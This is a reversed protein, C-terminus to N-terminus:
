DENEDESNSKDDEELQGNEEIKNNEAEEEEKLKKEKSKRLVEALYKFRQMCEEKTRGHVARAIKDWRELSGKPYMLLAAELAKQEEASWHEVRDNDINSDNAGKTKVKVKPQPAEEEEDPKKNSLRELVKKAMFTVEPVPRYLATAIREWRDPTGGPYRTCLKILEAIDDDTWLGGSVMPTPAPKSKETKNKDAWELPTAEDDDEEGKEPINVTKRKRPKKPVEALEKERQAEELEKAIRIREQEKAERLEKIYAKTDGPLSFIIYKISRYIQFPALDFISPKVLLKEAEAQLEDATLGEKMLKRSRQTKRLKSDIQEQLALKKEWYAGYKGFYQCLSVVGLVILAVQWLELKRARRYYFSAHRWNPLGDKLVQNYSIRLDTDKLVEYIGVLQRFKVAADEAPNKDPHLRLSLRRYSQRLEKTSADQPVEMFEYFSQGALEEVLDYMDYEANDWAISQEVLCIINLLAIFYLSKLLNAM